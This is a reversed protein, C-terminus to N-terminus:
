RSQYPVSEVEALFTTVIGASQPRATTRAFGTERLL